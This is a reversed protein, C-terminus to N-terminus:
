FNKETIAGFGSDSVRWLKDKETFYWRQTFSVSKLIPSELRWYQFRLIAIAWVGKDKLEVDRLEYDTIRIKGKFKDVEAWFAERKDPPVFVSAQAYEEWRFAGNFAEVSARLLREEKKEQGEGTSACSAVILAFFLVLPLTLIMPGPKGTKEM